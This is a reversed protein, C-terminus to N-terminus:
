VYSLIKWSVSRNTWLCPHWLNLLIGEYIVYYFDSLIKLSFQNAGVGSLRELLLSGKYTHSSETNINLQHFPVQSRLCQTSIFASFPNAADWKFQLIRKQESIWNLEAVHISCRVIRLTSIWDLWLTQRWMPTRSFHELCVVSDSSGIRFHLWKSCRMWSGWGVM